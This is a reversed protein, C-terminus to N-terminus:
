GVLLINKKKTQGDPGVARKCMNFLEFSPRIHEVYTLMHPMNFPIVIGISEGISIM